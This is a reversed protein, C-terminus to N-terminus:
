SRCPAGWCAVPDASVCVLRQPTVFAWRRGTFIAGTLVPQADEGVVAIIGISGPEPEAVRHLRDSMLSEWLPVLGGAQEILALGEEDTSYSPLPIGAWRAPWASCDHEGPVWRRLSAAELYAALESM